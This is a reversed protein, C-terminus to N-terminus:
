MRKRPQRCNGTSRGRERARRHRSTKLPHLGHVQKGTMVVPHDVFEYLRHNVLPSTAHGVHLPVQQTHQEARMHLCLQAWPQRGYM